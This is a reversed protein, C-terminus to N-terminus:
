VVRCAVILTISAPKLQYLLKAAARATAGTTCLDDILILHKDKYQAPNAVNLAFADAVNLQRADKPLTLQPATNKHRVLLDVVPINKHRALVDAMEHAQNFGRNLYRQWHLPMPVLYDGPLTSLPTHHWMLEGLHKSATINGSSKALVLKKLPQLYQGIAHVTISKTATVELVYSVMPAIQSACPQCLPAPSLLFAQCSGCLPPFITDRLLTLYKKVISM